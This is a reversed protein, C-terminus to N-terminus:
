HCDHQQRRNNGRMMMMAIYNADTCIAKRMLTALGSMLALSIERIATGMMVVIVVFFIGGVIVTNCFRCVKDGTLALYFGFETRVVPMMVVCM